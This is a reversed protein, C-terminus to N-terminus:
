QSRVSLGHCTLIPCVHVFAFTELHLNGLVGHDREVIFQGIIRSLHQVTVFTPLWQGLQVTRALDNRAELLLKLTVTATILKLDGDCRVFTVAFDLRCQNLFNRAIGKLTDIVDLGAHLKLRLSLFARQHDGDGLYFAIGYRDIAVM